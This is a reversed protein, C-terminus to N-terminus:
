PCPPGLTCRGNSVFCSSAQGTNSLCGRHGDINVCGLFDCASAEMLPAQVPAVKINAIAGLALLALRAINWLPKRLSM